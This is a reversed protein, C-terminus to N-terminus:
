SRRGCTKRGLDVDFESASKAFRSLPSNSTRRSAPHPRGSRRDSRTPPLSAANISQFPKICCHRGTRGSDGPQGVAVGARRRCAPRPHGGGRRGDPPRHQAVVAPLREAPAVRRPGACRRVAQWTSVSCTAGTTSGPSTTPSGAAWKAMFPLEVATGYADRTELHVASHSIGKVMQDFGARRASGRNTSRPSRTAIGARFPVIGRRHARSRCPKTVDHRRARRRTPGAM